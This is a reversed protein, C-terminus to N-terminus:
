LAIRASLSGYWTGKRPDYSSETLENFGEIPAEGQQWGAELSVSGFLLPYSIGGFATWRNSKIEMPGVSAYRNPKSTDGVGVVESHRSNSKYWDHGVGGVLGLHGLNKGIGVRSSWNTLDFSIERWHVTQAVDCYEYVTEGAEPPPAAAPQRCVKGINVENVGTRSLSLSIGPVNFSEGLLQVRAGVGFGYSPNDFGEAQFPSLPLYSFSGVVSIAGIGRIGPRMTYGDTLAVAIEANLAPLYADMVPDEVGDRRGSLAIDPLHASLVNLRLGTSVDPLFNLRFGEGGATIPVGGAALIGVLAQASVATQYTQRSWYPCGDVILTGDLYCPPRNWGQAQLAPVGLLSTALALLAPGM